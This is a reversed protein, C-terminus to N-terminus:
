WVLYIQRQLKIRDIATHSSPWKLRQQTTIDVKKDVGPFKEHDQTTPFNQSCYIKTTKVYKIGDQFNMGRICHYDLPDEFNLEHFRGYVHLNKLIYSFKLSTM